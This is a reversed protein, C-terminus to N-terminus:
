VMVSKELISLELWILLDLAVLVIVFAADLVPKPLRCETRVDSRLLDEKLLLFLVDRLNYGTPYNFNKFHKCCVATSNIIVKKYIKPAIRSRSTHNLVVAQQQLLVEALHGGEALRVIGLLESLNGTGNITVQLTRLLLLLLVAVVLIGSM